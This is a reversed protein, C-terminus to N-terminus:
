GRRHSFLIVAASVLVGLLGASIAVDYILQETATIYVHFNSFSIVNGTEPRPARPAFVAYAFALIATLPAGSALPVSLWLIKRTDTHKQQKMRVADSLARLTQLPDFASM